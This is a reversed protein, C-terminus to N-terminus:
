NIDGNVIIPFNPHKEKVQRILDYNVTGSYLDSKTRGHIALASAGANIIAESTQFINISNHDWGLRIKVTVPKKVNSVVAKVTNYIKDVDLM